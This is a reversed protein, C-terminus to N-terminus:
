ELITMSSVGCVEYDIGPIPLLSGESPIESHLSTLTFEGRSILRYRSASRDAEAATRPVHLALIPQAGTNIQGTEHIQSCWVSRVPWM